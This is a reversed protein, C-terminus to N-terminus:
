AAEAFVNLEEIQKRYRPATSQWISQMGPHAQQWPSCVCNPHTSGIVVHHERWGGRNVGLSDAQRVEAVTYLRPTGDPNRYLRLCSRCPMAATLRFVQTEATWGADDARWSGRSRAEAIETRIVRDADRIVGNARQTAGLQRSIEQVTERARLGEAAVRRLPQLEREATWIHGSADFIPRLFAGARRSVHEIALQETPTIPFSAAERVVDAWQAPKAGLLADYIRGMRYALAPFGLVERPLFGLQTLREAVDEPVRMGVMRATSANSVDFLIRNLEWYDVDSPAQVGRDLLLKDLVQWISHQASLFQNRSEDYLRQLFWTEFNGEGGGTDPTNAKFFWTGHPDTGFVERCLAWAQEATPQGSLIVRCEM